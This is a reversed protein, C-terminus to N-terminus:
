CGTRRRVRNEAANPMLSKLTRGWAMANGIAATKRNAMTWYSRVCERPHSATNGIPISIQTLLWPVNGRPKSSIPRHSTSLM